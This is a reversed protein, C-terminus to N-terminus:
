KTIVEQIVAKTYATFETNNVKIQALLDDTFVIKCTAFYTSDTRTPTNKIFNETDSFIGDGDIDVAISITSSSGFSQLFPTEFSLVDTRKGNETFMTVILTNKSIAKTATEDATNNATFYFLAFTCM